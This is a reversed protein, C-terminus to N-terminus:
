GPRARQGPESLSSSASPQCTSASAAEIVDLRHLCCDHDRDQVGPGSRATVAGYREVPRRVFAQSARRPAMGGHGFGVVLSAEKGPNRLVASRGPGDVDDGAAALGAELRVLKTPEDFPQRPAAQDLDEVVTVNMQGREAPRRDVARIESARLGPAQRWAGPRPM